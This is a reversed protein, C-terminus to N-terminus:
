HTQYLILGELSHATGLYRYPSTFYRPESGEIVWGEGRRYVPLTWQNAYGSIIVEEALWSPVVSLWYRVYEAAPVAGRSIWTGFIHAGKPLGEKQASKTAYETLYKWTHGTEIRTSGHEWHGGPKDPTPIDSGRTVILALHYHPVHATETMELAWIYAILNKGLSERLWHLYDSIHRPEWAIDSLRIWVLRYHDRDVMYPKIARAWAWIRRRMHSLRRAHTDVVLYEGTRTDLVVVQPHAETPLDPTDTTDPLFDM